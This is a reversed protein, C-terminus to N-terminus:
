TLKSMFWYLPSLIKSWKLEDKNNDIRKDQMERLYKLYKVEDWTMRQCMEKAVSPVDKRLKLKRIDAADSITQRHLGKQLCLDSMINNKAKLIKVEDWFEPGMSNLVKWFTRNYHNYLQVDAYSWRQIKRKLPESINRRFDKHRENLNFYVMDDLEWCMIRKLLVLSEDFYEMLMVLDLEKDLQEIAERIKDKRDFDKSELGLDYFMGNRILKLRDSNIRLDQTLVYNVLITQPDKFFEELPDSSNMGLIKDLTMYSFTSEFQTVPNRLITVYMTDNPM